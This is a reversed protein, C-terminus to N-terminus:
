HGETKNMKLKDEKLIMLQRNVERMLEKYKQLKITYERESMKRDKFYQKQMSELLGEIASKQANLHNFRLTIRLKKLSSWFSLLLVAIIALIILIKLWNNVLFNKITRSTSSYFVKVLTQSSQVESIRDYGETILSLTDEFREEKFSLIIKNYEEQMESLNSEEEASFYAEKFVRLEDNAKLANDKITLVNSSHELILKYNPKEGKEELALQASYLQLAEQYTENVRLVSINRSTMEFIAKDAQELMKKAEISENSVKISGASSISSLLILALALLLLIAIIRKNEKKVM